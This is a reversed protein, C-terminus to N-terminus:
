GGGIVGVPFVELIRLIVWITVLIGGGWRLTGLLESMHGQLTTLSDKIESMEDQLKDTKKDINDLRNLILLENGVIPDGPSDASNSTPRQASASDNM